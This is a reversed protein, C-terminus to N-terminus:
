LTDFSFVDPKQIIVWEINDENWEAFQDQSVEPQPVPAEWDCTETNLIWSSYPKPIIFADLTENYTDGIAPYRKRINGNYSAQIWNTDEGFLQKCFSIGLEESENGKEDIIVENIVVIVEIVQNNEDLKAFHAM